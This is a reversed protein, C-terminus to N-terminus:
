TDTFLWKTSIIFNAFKIMQMLKRMLIKKNLNIIVAKLNIRYNIFILRIYM